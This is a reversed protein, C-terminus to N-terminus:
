QLIKMKIHFNVEQRHFDEEFTAFLARYFISGCRRAAPPSDRTLTGALELADSFYERLASASAEVAQRIIEPSLSGKKAKKRCTAQVKVRHGPLSHLVLLIWVDMATHRDAKELEKLVVHSIAFNCRFGGRLSEIVLSEASAREAQLANEDGSGVRLATVDLSRIGSIVGVGDPGSGATQLLFKVLLPLVQLDASKLKPMVKAQVTSMMESELNLNSLADLVPPLLGQDSDMQELLSQVVDDHQRDDIIEPFCEIIERQMDPQLLQMVELLAGVLKPCDKVRDLWRVQNLCLRPVGDSAAGGGEGDGMDEAHEAMKGVLLELLQTQISDVGLLLKILTDQQAYFSRAAGGERTSVWPKLCKLLNEPEGAYEEFGEMFAAVAEEKRNFAKFCCRSFASIDRSLTHSADSAADDAGLGFGADALTAQFVNPPAQGNSREGLALPQGGDARKRGADPM